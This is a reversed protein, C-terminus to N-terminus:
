SGEQVLHKEVLSWEALYIVFSLQILFPRLLFDQIVLLDNPRILLVVVAFADLWGSEFELAEDVLQQQTVGVLPERAFLLDKIMREKGVDFIRDWIDHSM